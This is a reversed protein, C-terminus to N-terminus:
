RAAAAERYVQLTEEAMRRWSFQRSRELGRRGLSDAFERDSLIRLLVETLGRTDGPEIIAAAEDVYEPAERCNSVVTPTACAMAEFVALSFGYGSVFVFADAARYYSALQGEPVFGPFEVADSIGLQGVLQSLDRYDRGECKGVLILRSAPLRRHVQAFSQIVTDLGKPYTLEGVYLIKKPNDKGHEGPSFTHHDVGWPVFRTTAPRRKFRKLLVQRTTESPAIVWPSFRIALLTSLRNQVSFYAARFRLTPFVKRDIHILDHVTTILPLRRSLLTPILGFPSIVHYVDAPTRLLAALTSASSLMREPASSARRGLMHLEIEAAPLNRQLELAYRDIGLGRDATPYFPHCILCVQLQHRM